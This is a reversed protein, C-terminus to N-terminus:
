WPSPVAAMSCWMFIVHHIRIVIITAVPFYFTVAANCDKATFVTVISRYCGGFLYFLTELINGPHCKSFIELDGMTEFHRQRQSTATDWCHSGLDRRVLAGNELGPRRSLGDIKKGRFFRKQQHFFLNFFHQWHKLITTYIITITLLHNITCLLQWRILLRTTIYHHDITPWHYHQNINYNNTVNLRWLQTNRAAGFVKQSVWPKASPTSVGDWLTDVPFFHMPTISIYLVEGGFIGCKM